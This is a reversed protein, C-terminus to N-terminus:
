QPKPSGLSWVASAGLALALVIYSYPSYKALEFTARGLGFLVTARLEPSILLFGGAM